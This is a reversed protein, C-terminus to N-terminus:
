KKLPWEIAGIFDHAAQDVLSEFKAQDRFDDQARISALHEKMGPEWAISGSRKLDERRADRSDVPHGTVPSLYAEMAPKVQLPYM